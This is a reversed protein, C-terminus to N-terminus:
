GGRPGPMAAPALRWGALAQRWRGPGAAVPGPGAAASPLLFVQSLHASASMFRCRRKPPSSQCRLKARNQSPSVMLWSPLAMATTPTGSVATMTSCAPVNATVRSVAAAQSGQSTMPSGAPAHTSRRGALGTIIAHSRSAATSYAATGAAAQAPTRVMPRTMATWSVAPAALTTKM